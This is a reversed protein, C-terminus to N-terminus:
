IRVAGTMILSHLRLKVNEVGEMGLKEAFIRYDLSDNKMEFALLVNPLTDQYGPCPVSHMHVM